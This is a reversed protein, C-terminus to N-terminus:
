ALLGQQEIIDTKLLGSPIQKLKGHTPRAFGSETDAPFEEKLKEIMKPTIRISFNESFNGDGLDIKIVEFKGEYKKAMKKAANTLKKDYTNVYLEKRKIKGKYDTSRSPNWQDLIQDSNAWAITDKGEEVAKMVAYNLSTTYWRDGQVPTRNTHSHNDLARSTTQLETQHESFYQGLEIYEDDSIGSWNDSDPNKPNVDWTDEWEKIQARANKKVDSSTSQFNALQYANTQTLMAQKYLDKQEQTKVLKKWVLKGGITENTPSAIRRENDLRRNGFNLSSWANIMDGVAASDMRNKYKLDETEKKTAGYQRRSQQFDSQLEEIFYVSPTVNGNADTPTGMEVRDSKRLHAFLGKHGGYHMGSEFQYGGRKQESDPSLIILEEKYNEKRAEPHQRNLTFQEWNPSGDSVRNDFANDSDLHGEMRAHELISSELSPLDYIDELESSNHNFGDIPTSVRYGISDNGYAQYDVDEVPIDIEFEPDNLYLDRGMKELAVEIDNKYGAEGNMDRLDTVADAERLMKIDWEFNGSRVDDMIDAELMAIQQMVSETPEAYDRLLGLIEPHTGSADNELRKNSELLSYLGKLEMSKTKPYKEPNAEHMYRVLQLNSQDMHDRFDANYGTEPDGEVRERDPVNNFPYHNKSGGMMYAIEGDPTPNIRENSGIEDNFIGEVYQNAREESDPSLRWNNGQIDLWDNPEDDSTLIQNWNVDGNNYRNMFDATADPMQLSHNDPDYLNSDYDFNNTDALTTGSFTLQQDAIHNLLGEKTVKEGEDMKDVMALIGLDALETQSVGRKEFWGRLQEQPLDTPMKDLIAQEAKSYFGAQDVNALQRQTSLDTNSVDKMSLGVPTAGVNKITTLIREKTEPKMAQLKRLGSAGSFMVALVDAPNELAAKRLAGETQFFEVTSDVVMKAMEENSANDINEFPMTAFGSALNLAEKGYKIPNMALDIGFEGIEFLSSPLNKRFVESDQAMNALGDNMSAIANQKITNNPNTTNIVDPAQIKDDYLGINKGFEFPRDILLGTVKDQREKETGLIGTVESGVVDWISKLFSSM